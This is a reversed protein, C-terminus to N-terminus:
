QYRQLRQKWQVSAGDTQQGATIYNNVKCVDQDEGAFSQPLAQIHIQVEDSESTCVSNGQAILTLSVMGSAIDSVGPSYVPNLLSSDSLIGDGNVMWYFDSYEQISAGFLEYTGSMCVSTDSGANVIPAPIVSLM